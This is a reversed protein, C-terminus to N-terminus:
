RYYSRAGRQLVLHKRDESLEYTWDAAKEGRPLASEVVELHLARYMARAGDLQANLSKVLETLRKIEAQQETTLAAVIM